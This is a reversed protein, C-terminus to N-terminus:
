NCTQKIFKDEFKMAALDRNLRKDHCDSSTEYRYHANIGISVPIKMPKKCGNVSDIDHHVGSRTILTPKAMCKTRGQFTCRVRNTKTFYKPYTSLNTCHPPLKKSLNTSDNVFFSNHFIYVPVRDDYVKALMNSWNM